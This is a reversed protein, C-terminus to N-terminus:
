PRGVMDPKVSRYKKQRMYYLGIVGKDSFKLSDLASREHWLM